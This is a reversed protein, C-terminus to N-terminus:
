EQIGGNPQVEATDRRAKTGWCNHVHVYEGVKIQETAMGIEEGYKYIMENKKIDCIAIKHALPITSKVTIYYPKNVGTITVQEQPLLKNVATAVQDRGKIQIATKSM